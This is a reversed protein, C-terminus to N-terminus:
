SCPRPFWPPSSSHRATTCSISRMFAQATGPAAEGPSAPAPGSQPELTDSPKTGSASPLASPALAVMAHEGLPWPSTSM